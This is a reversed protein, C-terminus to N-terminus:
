FSSVKSLLSLINDQLADLGLQVVLHDLFLIVTQTILIQLQKAISTRFAVCFELQEGFQVAGQVPEGLLKIWNILYFLKAYDM